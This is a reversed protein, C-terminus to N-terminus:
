ETSRTCGIDFDEKLAVQIGLNHDAPVTNWEESSGFNGDKDSKFVMTENVYGSVADSVIFYNGKKSRVLTRHNIIYQQTMESPLPMHKFTNKKM